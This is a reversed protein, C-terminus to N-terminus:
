GRTWIEMLARTGLNMGAFRYTERSGGDGAALPESGM